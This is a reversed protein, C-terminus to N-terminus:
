QPNFGKVEVVSEFADLYKAESATKVPIFEVNQECLM